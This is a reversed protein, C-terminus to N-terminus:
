ELIIEGMSAVTGDENIRARRVELIGKGAADAPAKVAGVSRSTISFCRNLQVAASMLSDWARDNNPERGGVREYYTMNFAVSRDKYVVYPLPPNTPQESKKEIQLRVNLNYRADERCRATVAYYGDLVSSKAPAQAPRAPSQTPAGFANPASDRQAAAAAAAAGIGMQPVRAPATPHEWSPNPAVPDMAPAAPPVDTKIRTPSNQFQQKLAPNMGGSPAATRSPKNQEQAARQALEQELKARKSREEELHARMKSIRRLSLITVVLMALILVASIIIVALFLVGVSDDAEEAENVQASDEQAKSVLATRTKENLNSWLREMIGEKQVTDVVWQYGEGALNPQLVTHQADEQAAASGETTGGLIEEQTPQPLSELIEIWHETQLGQTDSTLEAYIEERNKGKVTAYVTVKTDKCAASTLFDSEQFFKKLREVKEEDSLPNPAAPQAEGEENLGEPFEEVAAPSAFLYDHLWQRGEEPNEHFIGNLKQAIPANPDIQPEAGEGKDKQGAAGYIDEAPADETKHTPEEQEAQAAATTKEQRDQEDSASDEQAAHAPAATQEADRRRSSACGSLGALLSVALLLCILQKKM